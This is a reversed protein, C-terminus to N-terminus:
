GHHVRSLTYDTNFHYMMKLRDIACDRDMHGGRVEALFYRSLGLPDAPEDNFNQMYSEWANRTIPNDATGRYGNYALGRFNRYALRYITKTNM